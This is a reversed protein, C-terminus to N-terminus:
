PGALRDPDLDIPDSNQFIRDFGLDSVPGADFRMPVNMKRVAKGRRHPRIPADSIDFRLDVPSDPRMFPEELRM